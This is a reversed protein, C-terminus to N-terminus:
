RRHCPCAPARGCTRPGFRVADVGEPRRALVDAGSLLVQKEHPLQPDGVAASILSCLRESLARCRRCHTAYRSPRGINFSCLLLCLGQRLVVQGGGHSRCIQLTRFQRRASPYTLRMRLSVPAALDHGLHRGNILAMRHGQRRSAAGAGDALPRMRAVVVGRLSQGHWSDSLAM